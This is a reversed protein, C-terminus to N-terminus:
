EYRLAETPNVRSARRAPIYTALATVALVIPTVIVLSLFDQQDNGSPFAAAMLVGAALAGALGVVLGTVALVLGQRLVMRLVTPATAGIAMRIGIERTRRTASYAVLGYLGVISLALGMVGMAGVLTVLVNFISVARIRYLEEMTRVSFIPMNVDLGRVVERLPAALAGADGISQAVLITAASPNQRYPLYIFDSPPEAIFIYKGTKAVGVIQVWADQASKLRFRKGVADQKPWYHEAFHQNVIAVRPASEDDQRTFNRGALLPIALADLYYEDIRSALTSVDEKGPPFQFGEPAVPVTGLSDNLMPISSSLTVAKVGPVARAREAVDRFFQQTQADSYHILSTDFGMMMLHDTRYGPGITLQERFGRYMFMAVVLLVVSVAVQASALIARGWRRRRGPAVADGAKM